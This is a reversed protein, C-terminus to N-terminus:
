YGEPTECKSKLPPEVLEQRPVASVEGECLLIKSGVDVLDSRGRRQEEHVSGAAGVFRGRGRVLCRPPIPGCRADNPKQRERTCCRGAISEWM